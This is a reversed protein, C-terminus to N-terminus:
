LVYKPFSSLVKEMNQKGGELWVLVLITQCAFRTRSSSSSLARARSSLRVSYQRLGRPQGVISKLSKYGSRVWHGLIGLKRCPIKPVKEHKEVGRHKSRSIEELLSMAGEIDVQCVGVEFGLRRKQCAKGPIRQVEYYHPHSELELALKSKVSEQGRRNVPFRPGQFSGRPCKPSPIECSFEKEDLGRPCQTGQSRPSDLTNLRTDGLVQLRAWSTTFM